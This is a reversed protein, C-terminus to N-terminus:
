RQEDEIPPVGAIHFLLNFVPDDGDELTWDGYDLTAVTVKAIYKVGLEAKYRILM